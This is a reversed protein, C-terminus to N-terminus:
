LSPGAAPKARNSISASGMRFVTRDHYGRRYGWLRRAVVGLSNIQMSNHSARPLQPTGKHTKVPARAARLTQPYANLIEVHGAIGAPVQLKTTRGDDNEQHEAVEGVGPHLFALAVVDGDLLKATQAVTGVRLAKADRPVHLGARDLAVARMHLEDQHLLVQTQRHAVGPGLRRGIREFVIGLGERFPAEAFVAHKVGLRQLGLASGLISRRFRAVRRRACRVGLRGLAHGARRALGTYRQLATPKQSSVLEVTLSGLAAPAWASGMM